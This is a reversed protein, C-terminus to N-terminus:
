WTSTVEIENELFLKGTIGTRDCSPSWRCLYAEACGHERALELALRAGREYAETVDRGTVNKREAKDACTEFVRGRRRKVAPRPVPLGALTEPCCPIVEIDPDALLRRAWRPAKVTRGHWRCAVGLLCASVLIKRTPGAPSFLNENM